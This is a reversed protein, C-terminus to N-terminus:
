VLSTVPKIKLPFGASICNIMQEIADEAIAQSIGIPYKKVAEKILGPIEAQHYRILAMSDKKILRNMQFLELVNKWTGANFHVPQGILEYIRAIHKKISGTEHNFEEWDPDILFGAENIYEEIAMCAISLVKVPMIYPTIGVAALHDHEEKM